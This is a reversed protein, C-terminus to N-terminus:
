LTYSNLHTFIKCNFRNSCRIDEEGPMKAKGELEQKNRQIM